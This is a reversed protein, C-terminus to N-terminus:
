PKAKIIRIEVKNHAADNVVNVRYEADGPALPVPVMLEKPFIGGPLDVQSRKGNIDITLPQKLDEPSVGSLLVPDGYAAGLTAGYSDPKIGMVMYKRGKVPVRMKVPETGSAVPESVFVSVGDTIVEFRCSRGKSVSGLYGIWAELVDYKGELKYAVRAEGSGLGQLTGAVDKHGMKAPTTEWMMCESSERMFGLLNSRSPEGMVMSTLVGVTIGVVAVFGFRKVALVWAELEGVGCWGLDEQVELTERSPLNVYDWRIRLFRM